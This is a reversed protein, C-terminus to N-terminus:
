PYFVNIEEGVEVFFYENKNLTEITPLCYLLTETLTKNSINGLIIRVLKKPKKKIFFSARFDEDKTIVICDNQDAYDCIASDETFWKDLINNVHIAQHGYQELFKCVKYSIHVDCLFKM